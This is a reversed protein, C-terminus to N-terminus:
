EQPFQSEAFEGWSRNEEREVDDILDYYRRIGASIQQRESEIMKEHILHDLAASVSGHKTALRKIYSISNASLSFTRKHRRSLRALSTVGPLAAQKYKTISFTKGLNTL